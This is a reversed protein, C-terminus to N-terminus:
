SIENIEQLIQDIKEYGRPKGYGNKNIKWNAKKKDPDKISFERAATWDTSIGDSYLASVLYVCLTDTKEWKMKNYDAPKPTGCFVATFHSLLTDKSILDAKILLEHLKKAKTISIISKSKDQKSNQVKEILVIGKACIKERWESTLLNLYWSFKSNEKGVSKLLKFVDQNKNLIEITINRLYTHDGPYLALLSLIDDKAEWLTILTKIHNDSPIEAAFFSQLKLNLILSDLLSIYKDIYQKINM